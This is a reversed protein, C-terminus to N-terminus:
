LFNLPFSFHINVNAIQRVTDTFIVDSLSEFSETFNSRYRHDFIFHGALRTTEAEDFHTIITFGLGGNVSQIAFVQFTAGHNDIRGARAFLARHAAATFATTTKTTAIAAGTTTSSAARATIAPRAAGTSLFGRAALPLGV